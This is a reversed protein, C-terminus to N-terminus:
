QASGSSELGEGMLSFIKALQDKAQHKVETMGSYLSDSEVRFQLRLAKPDLLLTVAFKQAEASEESVATEELGVVVESLGPAFDAVEQITQYIFAREEPNPVHAKFTEPTM